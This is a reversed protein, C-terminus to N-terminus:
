SDVWWAMVKRHDKQIM